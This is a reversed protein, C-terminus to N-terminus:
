STQNPEIFPWLANIEKLAKMLLSGKYPSVHHAEFVQQSFCDILCARSCDFQLGEFSQQEAFKQILLLVIESADAAYKQTSFRLKSYTFFKGDVNETLIDPRVSVQVGELDFIANRRIITHKGDAPAARGCIPLFRKIARINAQRVRGEYQSKVPKSQLAQLEAILAEESFVWNHLSRLVASSASHYRAVKVAKPFKQDRLIRRKAADSSFVFNGVENASVRPQSKDMPLAAPASRFRAGARVCSRHSKPNATGATVGRMLRM